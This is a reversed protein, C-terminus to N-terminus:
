RLLAINHKKYFDNRNYYKLINNLKTLQLVVEMEKTLGVIALEIKKQKCKTLINIFEGLGSSDIFFLNYCDLVLIDMKELFLERVEEGLMPAEMMGLKGSLLIVTVLNHKQVEIKLEM